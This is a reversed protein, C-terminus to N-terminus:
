GSADPNAALPACTVAGQSSHDDIQVDLSTCQVFDPKYARRVCIKESGFNRSLSFSAHKVKYTVCLFNRTKGKAQTDAERVFGVKM